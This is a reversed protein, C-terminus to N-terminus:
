VTDALLAGTTQQVVYYVIIAVVVLPDAYTFAVLLAIGLNKLSSTFFLALTRGRDLGLARECALAGLLGVGLVALSSVVLAPLVLGASAISGAGAVSTYILVLIAVTSGANVTRPSVASSPVVVALLVGGGIILLLDVLISGVPVNAQAGILQTLVIPTAIPAVFLSVISAITSLQVDGGSFRTWIIASGATTPVSLVIAFGVLAGDSLLASAIRIGGFPILGYSLVVSLGVVVAYPAFEVNKLTLGRFSSYVLFAVIPGVLPELYPGLAPVAVGAGVAAAVLLLNRYRLLLEGLM